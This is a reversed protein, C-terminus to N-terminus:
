YDGIVEGGSVTVLTNLLSITVNQNMFGVSGDAKLYQMGGTHASGMGWAYTCQLAGAANCQYGTYNIGWETLLTNTWV